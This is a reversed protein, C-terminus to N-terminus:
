FHAEYPESAFGIVLGGEGVNVMGTISMPSELLEIEHEICVERLRTYGPMAPLEELAGGYSVTVVPVLLGARIREITHEILTEVGTEFGRVKGVPGTEGHHARILPKIDLASGLAAGFLGVSRDGKKKARARLYYLDRPLAYAYSRQAVYELRERIQAPNHGADIQRAAEVVVVGSGAFLSQTDIVRMLFPGTVGARQRVTRYDKLVAFSARTANDHIPSRSATITLCFVCDYEIALRELFLAHIEDASLPETEAAHSRSGLQEDFFRRLEDPDRQDVFAEGDIRVTIPLIEIHHAEIFQRPLDCSADMVLGIRM